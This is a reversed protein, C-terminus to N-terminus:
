DRCFGEGSKIMLCNDKGALWKLGTEDGTVHRITEEVGNRMFRIVDGHAHGRYRNTGDLLSVTLAYLGPGREPAITLALGEVGTWRGIWADTVAHAPAAPASVPASEPQAERGTSQKGCGAILAGAMAAIAWGFRKNM